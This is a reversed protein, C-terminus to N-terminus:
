IQRYRKLIRINLLIFLIFFLLLIGLNCSIDLFSARKIMINSLADAGYSLPLIKSFYQLFPHLSSLPIIGSFFVQPIISYNM